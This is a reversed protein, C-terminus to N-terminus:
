DLLKRYTVHVRVPRFGMSEYLLNAGSLSETDVGLAAETMGLDRHMKLSHALLARALGRRRWPRRVSIGETYGRKHAYEENEEHNIYNLIMGAVQNGDWAVQWLDPQFERSDLWGQYDAEHPESYGWHDRFAEQSADWVTRYHEPRAPRTELGDPLALDPIDALNPRVMLYFRRVPQYGDGELLTRTGEQLSTAFSEFMKKAEPPHGTAIERIRRQNYRLMALGLGKRRWQPDVFGFSLYIYSESAEEVWWTLRSYAVPQGDIEAFLVDRSLDCNTLHSYSRTIEELTDAREEQDAQKAANVLALIHSFDIEGQFNRFSLGPLAPAEPIPIKEVQKTSIM